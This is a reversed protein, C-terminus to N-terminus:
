SWGFAKAVRQVIIILYSDYRVLEKRLESIDKTELYLNKIGFGLVRDFTSYIDAFTHRSDFLFGVLKDQDAGIDSDSLGSLDEEVAVREAFYAFVIIALIENMGQKYSIDHNEKAWLFLMGVLIDKVKKLTFFEFEQSTREIDQTILDRM